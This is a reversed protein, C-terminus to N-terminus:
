PSRLRYFRSCYNTWKSDSFYTTGNTGIFINLTNTSVPSWTPNVFNTCAEVVIVLNSSGTINFGFRNTQVGFNAGSSQAHPDWLV